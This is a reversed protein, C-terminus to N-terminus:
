VLRGEKQYLGVLTDVAFDIDADTNNKRIKFLSIDFKLRM